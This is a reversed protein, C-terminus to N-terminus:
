AERGLIALAPQSSWLGDPEPRSWGIGGARVSGEVRMSAPHLRVYSAEEASMVDTEM